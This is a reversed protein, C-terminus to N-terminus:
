NHNNNTSFRNGHFVHEKTKISIDLKLTLCYKNLSFIILSLVDLMQAEAECAVIHKSSTLRFNFPKAHYTNVLLCLSSTNLSVLNIVSLVTFYTARAETHLHTCNTCLSLSLPTTSNIAKVFKYFGIQDAKKSNTFSHSRLTMVANIFTQLLCKTISTISIKYNCFRSAVDKRHLREGNKVM